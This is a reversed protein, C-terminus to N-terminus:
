SPLLVVGIPVAMTAVSPVQATVGAVARLEPGWLRVVVWVSGAPLM